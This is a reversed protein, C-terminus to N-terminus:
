QKALNIGADKFIWSSLPQWTRAIVDGTNLMNRKDCRLGTEKNYVALPSMVACSIRWASQNDRIRNNLLWEKIRQSQQPQVVVTKFPYFDFMVFYIMHYICISCKYNMNLVNAFKWAVNWGHMASGMPTCMLHLLLLFNQLLKAYCQRVRWKQVFCYSRALGRLVPQCSTQLITEQATLWGSLFNGQRFTVPLVSTCAAYTNKFRDVRVVRTNKWDSKQKQMM